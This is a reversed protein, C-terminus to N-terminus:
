WPDSIILLRPDEGVTFVNDKGSSVVYLGQPNVGYTPVFSLFYPAGWPDDPWYELYPGQWDIIKPEDEVLNNGANGSTPWQGTDHHLMFCAARIAEMESMAKALKADQKTVSFLPVLAGSIIVAIAIVILLEILTFAKKTM